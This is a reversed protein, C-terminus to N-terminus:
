VISWVIGDIIVALLLALVVAGLMLDVPAPELKKM